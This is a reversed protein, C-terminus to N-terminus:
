WYQSLSGIFYLELTAMAVRNNKIKLFKRKKPNLIAFFTSLKTSRIVCCHIKSIYVTPINNQM